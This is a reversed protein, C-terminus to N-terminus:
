CNHFRLSDDSNRAETTQADARQRYETALADLGAADAVNALNWWGRAISEHVRQQNRLDSCPDDPKAQATPGTLALVSVALVAAGALRRHLARSDTRMHGEGKTIPHDSRIRRAGPAFDRLGRIM